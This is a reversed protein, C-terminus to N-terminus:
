GAPPTMQRDLDDMRRRLFPGLLIIAAAGALAIGSNMLWFQWASM